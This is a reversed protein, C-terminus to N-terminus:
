NRAWNKFFLSYTQNHKVKVKSLVMDLSAYTVLINCCFEVNDYSYNTYAISKINMNKKIIETRRSTLEPVTIIELKKSHLKRWKQLIEDCTLIDPWKWFHSFTQLVYCSAAIYKVNLVHDKEASFSSQKFPCITIM